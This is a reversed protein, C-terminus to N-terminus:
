RLQRAIEAAEHTKACLELLCMLLDTIRGVNQETLPYEFCHALLDNPRQVAQLRRRESSASEVDGEFLWFWSLGCARIFPYFWTRDYPIIIQALDISLLMAQAPSLVIFMTQQHPQALTTTSAEEEPPPNLITQLTHGVPKVARLADVLNSTSDTGFGGVYIPISEPYIGITTVLEPLDAQLDGVLHM